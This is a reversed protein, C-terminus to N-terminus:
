MRLNRFRELKQMKVFLQWRQVSTTLLREREKSYYYDKVSCLIKVKLFLCTYKNIKCANQQQREEELFQCKCKMQRFLRLKKM